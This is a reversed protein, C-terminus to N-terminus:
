HAGSSRFPLVRLVGNIAMGVGLGVAASALTNAVWRIVGGVAGSWPVADELRHVVDYPFHWGLESASAIMIHGGVWLMAATGIVTLAALLKPSGVVLLRGARRAVGSSGQYLKVGLDDLKVIVAVVGYVLATIGIAVVVLVAARTVLPEHLVEKLSIVMVEASLILDTRVAGSVVQKEAAAGQLVVPEITDDGSARHLVKHAGEYALFSGGAVLIVEVLTPVLSSFLLALPLIILLKNRLSGVAIKRIIPLERAPSLGHLYTPTVATDDVIVGAAKSGARGAALGVDDISAAATKAIAAVDDLLGVLGGAM